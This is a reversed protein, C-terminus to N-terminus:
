VAWRRRGGEDTNVKMERQDKKKKALTGFGPPKKQFSLAEIPRNL